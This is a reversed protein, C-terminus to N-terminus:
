AERAARLVEVADIRDTYIQSNVIYYTRGNITRTSM